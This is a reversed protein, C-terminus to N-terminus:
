GPYENETSAEVKGIGGGGKEEFGILVVIGDGRGIELEENGLDAMM